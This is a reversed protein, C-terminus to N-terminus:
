SAAGPRFFLVRGTAPDVMWSWEHWDRYAEKFRRLQLEVYEELDRDRREDSM